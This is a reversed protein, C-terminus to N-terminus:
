LPTEQSQRAFITDAIHALGALDHVDSNLEPICAFFRETNEIGQDGSKGPARPEDRQVRERLEQIADADRRVLRAYGKAAELAARAAEHAPFESGEGAGLAEVQM